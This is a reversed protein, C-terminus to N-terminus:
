KAKKETIKTSSMKPRLMNIKQNPLNESASAKTGRKKEKRTKKKGEKKYDRRTKEGRREKYHQKTADKYQRNKTEAHTSKRQTQYIKAQALRPLQRDTEEESPYV